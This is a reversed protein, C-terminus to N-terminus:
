VHARGIEEGDRVAQPQGSGHPYASAEGLLILAFEPNGGLATTAENMIAGIDSPTMGREIRPHTHRYAAITVDSALQMLAIEAPSKIMRCGRVVPAGSRVDVGPMALVSACVDSSWDSIRM